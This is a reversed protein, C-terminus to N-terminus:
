PGAPVGRVTLGPAVDATVVAGAGVVCGEGLRVGDVVIAGTGVFVGDAVTVGSGLVVGPSLSVYAGVRCGEGVVDHVNLHSHRGIACGSGVVSGITVIVGGALEADGAVVATPHVLVAAAISAPVIADIRRRVAVSGIAIVYHDAGLAAADATTGIIRVGGIRELLVPNPVGGASGPDADALVGLLDWTGPHARNIAHVVDVTERGHGGAGVVV